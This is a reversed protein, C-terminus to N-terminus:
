APRACGCKANEKARTAAAAVGTSRSQYDGKRFTFYFVFIRGLESAECRAGGGLSSRGQPPFSKKKDSFGGGNEDKADALKCEEHAARQM